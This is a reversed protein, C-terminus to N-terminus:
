YRLLAGAGNENMVDSDTYIHETDGGSKLVQGIMRDVLDDVPQTLRDCFSCTGPEDASLVDCFGCESGTARFDSDLVLTQVQRQNLKEVTGELGLVGRGGRGAENQVREITEQEKEKEADEILPQSKELITERDAEDPNVRITGIFRKQLYSHMLDQFENLNDKQGALIVFPIDEDEVQDLANRAVRKLHKRVHEELNRRIRKEEYGKFGGEKVKRPVQSEFTTESLVFNMYVETFKASHRDVSIVLTRNSQDLAAELPRIYPFRGIEYRSDLTIPLRFEQWFDEDACSFLVLMRTLDERIESQEIRDSFLDLDEQLSERVEETKEPFENKRIDDVLGKFSTKLERPSLDPSVELYLSSVQGPHTDKKYLERVDDKTIM